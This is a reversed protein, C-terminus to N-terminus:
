RKPGRKVKHQAHIDKFYKAVTDETIKVNEATAILRAISAWSTPNKGKRMDKISPYYKQILEVHSLRRGPKSGKMDQKPLVMSKDFPLAEKIQPYIRHGCNVCKVCDAASLEAVDGHNLRMEDQASHLFGKCRPCTM